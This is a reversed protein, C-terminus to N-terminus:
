AQLLSAELSYLTAYVVRIMKNLDSISGIQLFSIKCQILSDAVKQLGM